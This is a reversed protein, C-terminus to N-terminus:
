YSHFAGVIEGTRDVYLVLTEDYPNKHDGLRFFSFRFEIPLNATATMYLGNDIAMTPKVLTRLDGLRESLARESPGRHVVPIVGHLNPYRQAIMPTITELYARRIIEPCVALEIEENVLPKM